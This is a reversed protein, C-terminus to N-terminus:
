AKRLGRWRNANRAQDKVPIASVGLKIEDAGVTRRMAGQREHIHATRIKRYRLPKKVVQMQNLSHRQAETYTRKRHLDRQCLCDAISPGGIRDARLQLNLSHKRGSGHLTVVYHEIIRPAAQGERQSSCGPGFSNSNWEIYIAVGPQKSHVCRNGTQM